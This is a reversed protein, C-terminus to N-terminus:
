TRAHADHPKSTNVPTLTREIPMVLAQLHEHARKSTRFRDLEAFLRDLRDAPVVAQFITANGPFVQTGYHRGEVDKNEMLPYRVFETVGVRELMADVADTYEFHVHIQVLKVSM